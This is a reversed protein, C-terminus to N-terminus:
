AGLERLARRIDDRVPPMERRQRPVSDNGIVECGNARVSSYYRSKSDYMKGDAMSRIADMGDPIAYFAQDSAHLPPAESKSVVGLGPRYVFTERAM